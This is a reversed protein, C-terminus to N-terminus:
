KFQPLRELIDKATDAQKKSNYHTMQSKFMPINILPDWLNVLREVVM